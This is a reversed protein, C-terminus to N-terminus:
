EIILLILQLSETPRGAVSGRFHNLCFVCIIWHENIYPTASNNQESHDASVQGEAISVSVSQEFLYHGTVIFYGIMHTGLRPIKNRLQQHKRRLLSEVQLFDFLVFPEISDSDRNAM